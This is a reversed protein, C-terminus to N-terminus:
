YSELWKAREITQNMICSAYTIGSLTGGGDANSEKKCTLDRDKIWARQLTRLQTAKALPLGAIVGKYTANLRDDQRDIEEGLCNMMGITVGRAADGANMCSDYGVSPRDTGALPIDSLAAQPANVAKSESQISASVEAKEAVAVANSKDQTKAGDQQQGCASLALVYLIFHARFRSTIM